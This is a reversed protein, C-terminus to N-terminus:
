AHNDSFVPLPHPAFETRPIEIQKDKDNDFGGEYGEGVENRNIRSRSETGRGRERREPYVAEEIEEYVQKTRQGGVGVRDKRESM